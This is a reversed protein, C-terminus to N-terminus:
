DIVVDDIDASGGSILGTTTINSSGTDITGFGSTISGANLAGVSTIQTQAADVNFTITEEGSPNDTTSKTLGTGGVLKSDLYNATLENATVKVKYAATALDTDNVIATADSNWKLVANNEPEPIEISRGVPNEYTKPYTFSRDLTEKLQQALAVVRDLATEHSDAPFADGAAYDVLQTFPTKRRIVITGGNDPDTVLKIKPSANPSGVLTYNTTLAWKSEVGASTRLYVEIESNDFYTFTIALEDGTTKGTTSYSNKISDSSITM